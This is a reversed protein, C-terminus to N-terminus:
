ELGDYEVKALTLGRPPATQGGARRDKADFIAPIDNAEIKKRGVDIITGIINRVMYRLFSRGEITFIIEEGKVRMTFSTVERIRKKEPKDSTFSSFDKEGIFHKVARRMANLDLPFPIHTYYRFQFPSLVQGLFIRYIYTKSTAAYRANFSRDALQCDAIRIDEPLLSNLARKLSDPEIKISINFNATLGMSHVGSDTRSSGTVIVVKKAIVKLARVIEGQVTPTGPKQYQWGCYNTGDFQVIIKYNNKM